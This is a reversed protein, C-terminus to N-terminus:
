GNKKPKKKTSSAPKSESGNSLPQKPLDMKQLEKQYDLRNHGVGKFLNLFTTKIMYIENLSLPCHSLQEDDLKLKFIKDIMNEIKQPTPKDLSRTAAEVSDALMIIGSEKSQPKPGPYRFEDDVSPSDKEKALVQTYFISLLSTGHHELIIDQLISPLKHKKAMEHGEKVHSIIIMKSIRPSLTDHPNDESFQNEIFFVPRKLKGIDHFYSGVRCLITNAGISEAAAEALNAVMLSHQYTGPANMMLRKMLPHNLNSLELLTQSTTIKFISEFYPLIALTIMASIVGNGFAFLFNTGYWMYSLQDNKLGLALILLVNLGGIIYGSVILESRKFIKFIVFTTFCNSFFLFLFADYSMNFMLAILLCALSGVLLSINPTLLISLLMAAISIPVLVYQLTHVPLIPLTLVFRSITLVLLTIVLILVFYKLEYVRKNFVLIFREFLVVCFLSFLIFSFSKMFSFTTDNLQLARIIEIHESTATESEYIIPQGKKIVTRHYSVTALAQKLLLQTQKTDITLNPMIYHSILKVLIRSTETEPVSSLLPLIRSPLSNTHKTKLGDNLLSTTADSSLKALQQLKKSPQKKLHALETKTLVQTMNIGMTDISHSQLEDFFLDLNQLIDRNISTNITYVPTINKKIRQTIKKNKLADKKSEFELHRSSTITYTAVEGKLLSIKQPLYPSYVILAAIVAFLFLIAYITVTKFKYNIISPAGHFM